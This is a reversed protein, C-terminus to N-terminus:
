EEALMVAILAHTAALFACSQARPAWHPDLDGPVPIGIADLLDEAALLHEEPSHRPGPAPDPTM